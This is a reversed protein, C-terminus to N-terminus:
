QKSVYCRCINVHCVHEEKSRHTSLCKCTYYLDGYTSKCTGLHRLYNDKRTNVKGCLCHYVPEDDSKHVTHRHRKLDKKHKFSNTCMTCPFLRSPETIPANPSTMPVLMPSPPLPPPFLSLAELTWPLLTFADADDNDRASGAYDMSPLDPHISWQPYLMGYSPEAFYPQQTFAISRAQSQSQSQGGGEGQGQSQGMSSHVSPQGDEGLFAQSNEWSNSGTYYQNIEPTPEM